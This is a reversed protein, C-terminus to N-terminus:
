GRRESRLTGSTDMNTRIWVYIPEHPNTLYRKNKAYIYEIGNVERVDGPEPKPEDLGKGDEIEPTKRVEPVPTTEQVSKPAAPQPETRAKELFRQLFGRIAGVFGDGNWASRRNQVSAAAIREQPMVGEGELDKVVEQIIPGDVKKKGVAYGVLFANDCLVNIVRPIGNSYRSILRMADRALLVDANGGVLAIRHKIYAKIEEDQLPTLKRRISIRQRLQRLEESNLKNELEPQGVLIIQLLKTKQTELNSLTRIEELLEISLNQAEDLILVVTEGKATTDLLYQDLRQWLSFRDRGRPAVGLENLITRLLEQFTACKRFIHATRVKENLSDLLANVLTTKGTGVEGTIALFGRRERIGYMMSALAERHSETLYLFKPDPSVDFPRESFGYFETYL